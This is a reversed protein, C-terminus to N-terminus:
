SMPIGDQFVLAHELSVLGRLSLSAKKSCLRKLSVANWMGGKLEVTCMLINTDSSPPSGAHPFTM